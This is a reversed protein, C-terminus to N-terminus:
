IQQALMGWGGSAEEITTNDAHSLATTGFLGRTLGTFTTSTKAQM